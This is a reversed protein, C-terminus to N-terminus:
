FSAFLEKLTDPAHRGITKLSVIVINLTFRGKLRFSVIINNKYFKLNVGKFKRNEWETRIAKMFKLDRTVIFFLCRSDLKRREKLKSINHLFHLLIQLDSFRLFSVYTSNAQIIETGFKFRHICLIDQNSECGQDPLCKWIKPMNADLLLLRRIKPTKKKELM